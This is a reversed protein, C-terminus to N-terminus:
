APTEKLLLVNKEVCATVFQTADTEARARDVAFTECMEDIIACLPRKGDAREWIFTGVRNLTHLQSDGPTVIVAEGEIVRAPNEPNQMPFKDYMSGNM